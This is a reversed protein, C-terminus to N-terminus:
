LYIFYGTICEEPVPYPTHDPNTEDPVTFALSNCAAAIKTAIQTTTDTSGIDVEVGTRSAVMPDTGVGDVKFWFYYDTDSSSFLAYTSAAPVSAVIFTWIFPNAVTTIFKAAIEAPSDSSLIPVTLTLAAGPYQVGTVGDVSFSVSVGPKQQASLWANPNPTPRARTNSDLTAWELFGLNADFVYTGINGTYNKPLYSTSGSLNFKLESVAADSPTGVTTDTVTFLTSAPIPIPYTGTDTDLVGVDYFNGLNSFNTAPATLYGNIASQGPTGVRNLHPASPYYPPLEATFKDAWTLTVTSSTGSKLVADVDALLGKKTNTVSLASGTTGNTYASKERAGIGSSFKVQNNTSIVILDGNGGYAQGISGPQGAYLRSYPINIDNYDSVKYQANNCRVADPFTDTKLALFWKGTDSVNIINTNGGYGYRQYTSVLGTSALTQTYADGVVKASVLANGEEGYIPDATTGESNKVLVNTVAVQCIQGPAIQLRIALTSGEGITKGSNNDPTFIAKYKARSNTLTFSTVSEIVTESGGRGFYKELNVNIIPSGGLKSYAQISVVLQTNQGFNVNGIVTRLDKTTEGSQVNQSTVVIQNVPNGEIQENAVNEFTVFNQTTTNADQLFDWSWSVPTTANFIKGPPDKPKSFAVPFDFQGDPVYNIFGYSSSGGGTGTYPYYFHQYTRVLAGSSDREVIYYLKDQFYILPASGDAGLVIPNPNSVPPNAPDVDSYTDLLMSRATDDYFTLTGGANPVNAGSEPDPSLKFFYNVFPANPRYISM